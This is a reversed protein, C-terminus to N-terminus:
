KSILCKLHVINVNEMKMLHEKKLGLYVLLDMDLQLHVIVVNKCEIKCYKKKNDYMDIM